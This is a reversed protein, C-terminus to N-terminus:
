FARRRAAGTTTGGGSDSRPLEWGKFTSDHHASRGQQQEQGGGPEGGSATPLRGLLGRGLGGRGGRRRRRGGGVSSLASRSRSPALASPARLPRAHALGHGGIEGRHDVELVVLRRHARGILGREVALGGIRPALGFTLTWILPWASSRPESSYLRASPLRRAAAALRYRSFLPMSADRM